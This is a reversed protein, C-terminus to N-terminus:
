PRFGEFIIQDAWRRVRAAEGASRVTWTLLPVRSLRKLMLPATAPLDRADYAIFHPRTRGVHLLHRIAFRQLATSPAPRWDRFSAGIAGRTLEPAHRRFAALAAPDYSMVAAPGDYRRLSAAIRACLADAETWNTKVEVLLPGRGAVLDLLGPLSLIRDETGRLAVEGLADASRAALPGTEDTLRDLVPDHFVVPAGGAAAQVDCEIAYGGALAAEFASATNEVVGAEADHLGRHAVPRATLWGRDPM